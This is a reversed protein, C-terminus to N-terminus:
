SLYDGMTYTTGKARQCHIHENPTDPSELFAYFKPGLEAKLGELVSHKNDDSLDNSRIDLANGSHHPDSPGSHAGDSGSTVTIDFGLSTSISKLAELIRFMAPAYVWKVGTKVKIM